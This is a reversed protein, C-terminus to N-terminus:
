GNRHKIIYIIFGFYRMLSLAPSENSGIYRLIINYYLKVNNPKINFRICEKLFQSTFDSTHIKEFSMGRLKM